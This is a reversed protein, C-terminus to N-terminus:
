EGRLLGAQRVVDGFRGLVPATLKVEFGEFEKLSRSAKDRRRPDM